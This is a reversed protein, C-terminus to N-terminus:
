LSQTNDTQTYGCEECRRSQVIKVIKKIGAPILQFFVEPRKIKWKGWSHTSFWKECNKKKM